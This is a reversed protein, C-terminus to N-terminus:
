KSEDNEQEEKEWTWEFHGESYRYPQTDLEFKSCVTFAMHFNLNLGMTLDEARYKDMTLPKETKDWHAVKSRYDIDTVFVPGDDSLVLVYYWNQKKAM